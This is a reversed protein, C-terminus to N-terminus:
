MWLPHYFPVLVVVTQKSYNLEIFAIQTWSRVGPVM